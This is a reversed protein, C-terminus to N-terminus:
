FYAACRWVLYSVQMFRMLNRNRDNITILTSEQGFVSQEMEEESLDVNGDGPLKTSVAGTIHLSACM